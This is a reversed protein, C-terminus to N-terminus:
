QDVARAGRQIQRATEQDFERRREREAVTLCTTVRRNSGTPAERSCVVRSSAEADTLIQNIQEQENFVRAKTDENLSDISEVGELASTIRDLSERVKARDNRSIEAYTKGDALDAEIQARQAAFDGEALAVRSAEEQKAWALSGSLLLAAFVAARIM